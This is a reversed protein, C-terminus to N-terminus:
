LFSLPDVDLTVRVKSRKEEFYGTEALVKSVFQRLVRREAGSLVLQWRYRGKVREVPSIAPGMIRLGNGLAMHQWVKRAVQAYRRAEAHVDSSSVAEFRILVLHGYPPYGFEMRYASEQEFFSVYDYQQVAKLVFHDPEYTQILVLGELDARGSRGAVQTLLQFAQEAARFDPFNLLIDALIVGVLTVKPFDHGKTIMQTGILVQSKGDRFRDLLQHLRRGSATDSDMRDVKPASAIDWSDITSTLEQQLNETGIGRMGISRDGCKPCVEPLRFALGCMHCQLSESNQHYTLSVSCETCSWTHGCTDCMLSRSYGRLNLFLIAQEGQELSHRLSDRLSPSLPFSGKHRLDVLHVEPMSRQNARLPLSLYTLVGRQANAYSEMSPTASGLIVPCQAQKGLVLAMDRAHYRVGTSQKYSSDHEEDVVVVGLRDIPAFLASRAGIVIDIESRTIKRWQDFREADLLQSHLVAIASDAFHGRFVAVVQPTLAIEPLLVLARKKDALVERIVRVYLETKGSGTVGHLLFGEYRQERHALLLHELAHSQGETLQIDPPPIVRADKFPDSYVEQEVVRLIGKSVLSALSSSPNRVHERLISIPVGVGEPDDVFPTFDEEEELTVSEDSFDDDCRGEETRFEKSEHTLDFAVRKGILQLIERQKPGLRENSEVPRSLSYFKETRIRERPVEYSVDVLDLIEFETLERFTTSYRKKLTAVPVGDSASLDEDYWVQQLLPSLKCGDPLQETKRRYKITAEQRMESPLAMRFTQGIPAIYYGAVFSLFRIYVENLLPKVDLIDVIPRIKGVYPLDAESGVKLVLGVVTTGRFPVQVRQGVQVRDAFIGPVSYTLATYLPVDVAVAVREIPLSPSNIGAQTSSTM